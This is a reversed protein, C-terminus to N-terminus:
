EKSEEGGTVETRGRWRKEGREGKDKRERERKEEGSKWLRGRM